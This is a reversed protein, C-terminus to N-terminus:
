YKSYSLEEWLYAAHFVIRAVCERAILDDMDIEDDEIVTAIHNLVWYTSPKDRLIEWRECIFFYLNILSQVRITQNEEFRNRQLDLILSTLRDRDIDSSLVDYLEYASQVVLTMSMECGFHTTLRLRNIQRHLSNGIAHITLESNKQFVKADSDDQTAVCCFQNLVTKCISSLSQTPSCYLDSVLRAYLANDKQEFNSFIADVYENNEAFHDDVFKRPDDGAEDLQVFDVLNVANEEQRINMKKDEMGEMNRKGEWSDVVMSVTLFDTDDVDLAAAILAITEPRQGAAGGRYCEINSITQASVHALSALKAQSLGRKERLKKLKKGDIQQFQM